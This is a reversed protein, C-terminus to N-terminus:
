SKVLSVLLDGDRTDQSAILDRGALEFDAFDFGPSVTCGVLSYAGNGLTYAGFWHGAKVIHQPLAKAHKISGLMTKQAKGEATLEVICLPAGAYHHWIEDSRIRHLHSKHGKPLLFYIATCCSRAGQFTDPFVQQPIQATSRYTERYFGGEPHPKLNLRAVLLSVRDM